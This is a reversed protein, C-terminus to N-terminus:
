LSGYARHHKLMAEQTHMTITQAAVSLTPVVYHPLREANLRWETEGGRDVLITRCGARRGAQIDDLIDGIMWSRRLDINLDKAAALLLGAEPKRCICVKAFREVNGDPHHPCYYFGELSIHARELILRLGQELAHLAPEDYHGLAVGPQNTIVVLRYGLRCLSQLATTAGPMLRVRALDVNYPINEVLTGDKDLFVAPHSM